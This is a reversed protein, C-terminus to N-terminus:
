RGWGGRRFEYGCICCRDRYINNEGDCCPCVCVQAERAFAYITHQDKEAPLSPTEAPPMPPIPSPPVFTGTVPAPPPNYTGPVPPSPPNYTGPVPPSPPNYTGPVPPSPPVFTGPAPPVPGPVPVYESTKEPKQRFCLVLLVAAGVLAGIILLYGLVDMTDIAGEPM